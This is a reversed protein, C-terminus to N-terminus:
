FTEEPSVVEFGAHKLDQISKLMEFLYEEDHETPCLRIAEGGTAQFHSALRSDKKCCIEILVAM